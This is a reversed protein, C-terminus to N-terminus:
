EGDTAEPELKALLERLDQRDAVLWAREINNQPKKLEASIDAIAQEYYERTGPILENAM